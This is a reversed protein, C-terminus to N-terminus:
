EIVQDAETTIKPPITLGLAKAAKLNIILDFKVPQQVPLNAPKDGRLIKDVYIAAGRYLDPLSPGYSLLGGASPYQDHGYLAPLRHKLALQALLTRHLTMFSDSLVFLAEDHQRDMDDFVTDFDKPDSVGESTLTVGLKGAADQAARWYTRIFPVTPNWLVAVRSVNPVIETILQLQKTTIEPGPDFSTGTINGGPHALSAVLGQGVPDGTAAFVIPISSTADKAARAAATACAVIVDVNLHVLEAASKTLREMDGAAFRRDVYINRGEIWGLSGLRELFADDAALPARFALYGIRMPKSQQAHAALPWAAASGSIIRIFDRRRM